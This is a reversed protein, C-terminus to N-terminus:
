REWCSNSIRHGLSEPKIVMYDMLGAWHIEFLLGFPVGVYSDGPSSILFATDTARGM